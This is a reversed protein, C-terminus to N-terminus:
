DNGSPIWSEFFIGPRLDQLNWRLDEGVGDRFHQVQLWLHGPVVDTVPASHNHSSYFWLSM